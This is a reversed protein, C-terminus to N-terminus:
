YKKLEQLLFNIAHLVTQDVISEREGKLFLRKSVTQSKSSVAIFITGIPNEETGGTPGAYGTTALAFDSLFKKRISEAMKEAVLSSVESYDQILLKSVGLYNIKIDNQYAVVGGKFFVSAGPISTIKSSLLGATCSEATVVSVSKQICLDHLQRFPNM